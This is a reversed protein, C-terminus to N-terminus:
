IFPNENSKRTDIQQQVSALIKQINSLRVHSFEFKLPRKIQM